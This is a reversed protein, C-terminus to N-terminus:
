RGVGWPVVPSGRGHRFADARAPDVLPAVAAASPQASNGSNGCEALQQGTTGRDGVAVRLSGRKLRAFCAYVGEGLGLIVHNGWLHRPWGLSRVFGELYLHIFGPLSTRCFHDRQSDTTAVVM